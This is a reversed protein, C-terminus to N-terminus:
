NNLYSKKLDKMTSDIMIRIENHSKMESLRQLNDIRKEDLELKRGAIAQPNFFYICFLLIATGFMVLTDKM